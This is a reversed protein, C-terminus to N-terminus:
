FRGVYASSLVAVVSCNISPRFAAVLATSAGMGFSADEDEVAPRFGTVVVTSTGREGVEGASSLSFDSDGSTHCNRPLGAALAGGGSSRACNAGSGLLNLVTFNADFSSSTIDIAAEVAICDSTM